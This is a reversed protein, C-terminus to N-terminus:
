RTTFWEAYTPLEPVVHQPVEHQPVEHQPVENSEDILQLQARLDSDPNDFYDLAANLSEQQTFCLQRMGKSTVICNHKMYGDVDNLYVYVHVYCVCHIVVTVNLQCAPRQRTVCTSHM